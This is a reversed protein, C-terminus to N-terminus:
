RAVEVQSMAGRQELLMVIQELREEKAEKSGFM